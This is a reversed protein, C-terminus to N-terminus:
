FCVLASMPLYSAYPYRLNRFPLSVDYEYNRNTAGLDPLLFAYVRDDPANSLM